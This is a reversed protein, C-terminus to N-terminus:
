DDKVKKDEAKEITKKASEASEKANKKADAKEKKEEVHNLADETKKTDARQTERDQVHEVVKHVVKEIHAITKKDLKGGPCGEGSCASTVESKEIRLCNAESNLFIAIIALSSLLKM